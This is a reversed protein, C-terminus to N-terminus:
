QFIIISPHRRRLLAGAVAIVLLLALLVLLPIGFFASITLLAWIFLLLLGGIIAWLAALLVGLVWKNVIAWGIAFAVLIGMIWFFLYLNGFLANLITDIM